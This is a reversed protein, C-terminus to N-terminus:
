AGGHFFVTLPFPGESQPLYLRAPLGSAPGPVTLDRTSAIRVPRKPMRASNALVTARLEELGKPQPAAAMQLLVDKLHPDLPM